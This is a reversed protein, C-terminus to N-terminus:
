LSLSTSIAFVQYIPFLVYMRSQALMYQPAPSSHVQYNAISSFALASM